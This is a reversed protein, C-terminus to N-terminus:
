ANALDKCLRACSGLFDSMDYKIQKCCVYGTVSDREGDAGGIQQAGGPPQDVKDEGGDGGASQNMDAGDPLPRINGEALTQEAHVGTTGDLPCMTTPEGELPVGTTGDLPCMTIPKDELLVGATGDPPCMTIPKDELLVGATGDLPCM